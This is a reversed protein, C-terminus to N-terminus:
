QESRRPLQDLLKALPGDVDQRSFIFDGGGPTYQALMEAVEQAPHDEPFSTAIAGEIENAMALSDEGALFRRILSSLRFDNM